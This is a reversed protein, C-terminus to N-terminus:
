ARNKLLPRALLIAAALVASGSVVFISPVSARDLVFGGVLGGLIPGAGLFTASFLGQGSTQLNASSARSAGIVGAAWPLAFSAGHLLQGAFIWPLTPLLGITLLRTAAASAGLLLTGGTGLREVVRGAVRFGILESVTAVLLALGMTLSSAGISRLLVFLYSLTGGTFGAVLAGSLLPGWGQGRRLMRWYGSAGGVEPTRLPLRRNLWLLAVMGLAFATPAVRLSTQDITWGVIPAAIGWGVGGWLRLSGYDGRDTTAHVATADVFPVLPALTIALGVMILATAFLPLSSGWALGFAASGTGATAIGLMLRLKGTADAALSWLPAALIAAAPPISILWGVQSGSYGADRFILPLNPLLASLAAFYIFYYQKLLRQNPKEDARQKAV